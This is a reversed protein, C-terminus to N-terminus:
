VDIQANGLGQSKKMAIELKEAEEVWQLMIKFADPPNVDEDIRKQAVKEFMVSDYQATHGTFSIFSRTDNAEKRAGGAGPIPETSVEHPEVTDIDYGMHGIALARNYLATAAQEPNYPFNRKAQPDDAIAEFQKAIRRIELPDKIEGRLVAEYADVLNRFYEMTKSAM